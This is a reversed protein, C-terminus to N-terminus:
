SVPILLIIHIYFAWQWSIGLMVICATMSYGVFLGAPAATIILTMWRTKMCHPAFADVWVPLYISLIVQSFGSMFRAFLQWSYQVSVTFLALALMQLTMGVFIVLRTNVTEFLKM